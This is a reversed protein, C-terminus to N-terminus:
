KGQQPTLLESNFLSELKKLRTDLSKLTLSDSTESPIPTTSFLTGDGADWESGLGVKNVRVRLSGDGLRWVGLGCLIDDYKFYVLRGQYDNKLTPIADIAVAFAQEVTYPIIKYKELINKHTITETFIETQYKPVKLKNPLTDYINDFEWYYGEKLKSKQVEM